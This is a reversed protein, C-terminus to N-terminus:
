QYNFLQIYSSNKQVFKGWLYTKKWGPIFSYSCSNKSYSRLKYASRLGVIQPNTQLERIFSKENQVVLSRTKFVEREIANGTQEDCYM